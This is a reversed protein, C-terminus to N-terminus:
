LNNIKLMERFYVVQIIGMNPIKLVCLILWPVPLSPSLGCLWGIGFSVAILETTSLLLGKVFIDM